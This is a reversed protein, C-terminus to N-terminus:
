KRIVLLINSTHKSESIIEAQLGHSSAIRSIEDFSTFALRRSTGSVQNFGSRTSFLETLRTLGHKKRRDRDADRIVLIGGPRLNELCRHLLEQQSGGPLYHLVDSLLIGDQPTIRYELIDAHIFNLNKNTLFGNAATLIKDEDHDVATIKREPSTQSLMCAIFGFGCGLDLIDGSRPLLENYIQYNGSLRLKVRAYWELVPGKFVYNLMLKRRYFSGTGEQEHFLRYEDTYFRRVKKAREPYSTGFTVEDPGIRKMVKMRVPGPKGWFQHKGLFEGTGFVMVPLLDIRLKEALYFAGRHFRYIRFDESRHAEPFILISYGEAVKERLRDLINDLGEDVNFFSAVRAIPGFLPSNWVWDRTLILIKPHLRLFAPTEILSQHNSIIIAPRTFNEGYPNLFKRDFPFTIWIYAQTLLRFLRHFLDERKGPPLFFLSKLLLFWILQLLAVLVINGWTVFSKIMIRATVPYTRKKLRDLLFWGALLPQVTFSVLVVCVIGFLSILAISHLAPHRAFFLACVGFLTTVSSVLISSKFSPIGATGYRYDHLLGRTMLISYDVGLGFIFSSLIINFINFRIGTIGMFGLTLFWSLYMPLATLFTLEIRGFALFLLLTVFVMSLRVLLSFDHHVNEVFRDTLLQRDFVVLGPIGALSRYVAPRDPAKVKLVSTVMVRDEGTRVWESLISKGALLLSDAPVPRYRKELLDLFPLFATANFKHKVGAQVLSKRLSAIRERTWYREWIRIRVKQLSDSVLLAGPGSIESAVGSKKLNERKLDSQEYKRLSEELDKGLSVAFVNKQPGGSIEELATEAQRLSPSMFNMTSLDTEFDAKKIFFLAIIAGALLLGSIWYKKEFQIAAIRDVLGPRRVPDRVTDRRGLLHPLILLAFFAAGLVSIAAFWGLDHLVASRLFVLCLFAGASTIACLLISPTMEQLAREMHGYKHFHNILYLAYDVILGLIVSGIGLAIASVTGNVIYLIALALGGGYLAPLFGLFPIKLNRFYWSVLLIILILAISVTLAIDKKLQAANGCSVAVSGFCDARISGAYKATLQGLIRDVGAILISNKATENVSHAPTVPILLHRQDRTMIFGGYIMFRDSVRLDKLRNLVPYTLGLPDTRVREKVAFGAPSLLIRLDGELATDIAGPELMKSIRAYDKEDLFVPLHDTILRLYSGMGSDSINGTVSKVYTTDFHRALSDCFERAPLTLDTGPRALSDAVRLHVILKDSFSFHSAVYSFNDTENGTGAVRSINEELRIRTAFFLIFGITVLCFLSFAIKRKQFYRYIHIFPNSM